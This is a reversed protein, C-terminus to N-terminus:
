SIENGSEILFIELNEFKLRHFRDKMSISLSRSQQRPTALKSLKTKVLHWMETHKDEIDLRRYRDTSARTSQADTSDDLRVCNAINREEKVPTEQMWKIGNLRINPEKRANVTKGVNAKPVM